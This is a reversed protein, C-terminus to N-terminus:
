PTTPVAATGVNVWVGADDVDFIEGAISTGTKAVTHDDAVYANAGIDARKIEAAGASNELCFVGREGQAAEGEAQIALKTCVARVPKKDAAVAPKANGAADLTYMGGAFLTIGAALPDSVVVAAARRPTNRNQTLSAM